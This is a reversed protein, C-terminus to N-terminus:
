KLFGRAEDLWCDLDTTSMGRLILKNYGDEDSDRDFCDTINRLIKRAEKLRRELEAKTTKPM